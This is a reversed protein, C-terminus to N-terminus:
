GFIGAAANPTPVMHMGHANLLGDLSARVSRPDMAAHGAVRQAMRKRGMQQLSTGIDPGDLFQEPVLADLRGLDVGVDHVPGPHPHATRQVPSAPQLARPYYTSYYMSYKISYYISNRNEIRRAGRTRQGRAFGPRHGPSDHPRGKPAKSAPHPTLALPAQGSRLRLSPRPAPDRIQSKVNTAHSPPCCAGRITQTQSGPRHGPSDQPQGKPADSSPRPAHAPPPEMM